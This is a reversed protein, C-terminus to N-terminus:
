KTLLPKSRLTQVICLQEKALPIVDESLKRVPRYVKAKTRPEDYGLIKDFKIETEKPDVINNAPNDWETELGFYRKLLFAETPVRLSEKIELVPIGDMTQADMLAPIFSVILQSNGPNVDWSYAFSQGGSNVFIGGGRIYSAITKFGVGEANGSEPYAEDFPNQIVSFTSNSIHSIPTMSADFLGMMTNSIKLTLCGCYQMEIDQIHIIHVHNKTERASLYGSLIGIRSRDVHNENYMQIIM